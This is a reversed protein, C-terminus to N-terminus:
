RKTVAPLVIETIVAVPVRWAEPENYNGALVAVALGLRPGLFLRQGGNGFGAARAVM